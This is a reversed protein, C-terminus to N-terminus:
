SLVRLSVLVLLTAETPSAAVLTATSEVVILAPVPLTAVHAGLTASAPILILLLVGLVLRPLVPIVVLPTRVVVVVLAPLVLALNLARSWALLRVISPAIALGAAASLPLLILEAVVLRLLIWVLTYTAWM